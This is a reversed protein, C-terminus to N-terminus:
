EDIRKCPKCNMFTATMEDKVQSKTVSEHGFSRQTNNLQRSQEISVEEAMLRGNNSQEAELMNIDVSDM